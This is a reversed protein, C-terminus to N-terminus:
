AFSPSEKIPDTSRYSNPTQFFHRLTCFRRGVQEDFSRSLIQDTLLDPVQSFHFRGFRLLSSNITDNVRGPLLRHASAAHPGRARPRQNKHLHRSEGELRPRLAPRAIEPGVGLSLDALTAGM